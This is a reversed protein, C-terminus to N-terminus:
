ELIIRVKDIEKGKTMEELFADFRNRLESPTAPIGGEVLAAFLDVQSVTVKALGSLVDQLAKIFADSLKESLEGYEVFTTILKRSPPKLLGLNGQITPDELNALLTQTWARLMSALRDEVGELYAKASIGAPEAIPQYGCYPCIPSTQIEDETLTFCSKLEALENKFDALQQRPMLEITALKSLTDVREDSLLKKKRKDENVNLRTKAHLGLYIPLYEKRLKSMRQLTKQRKAASAAGDSMSLDALIDEHAARVRDIWEHNSPLVTEATALYAAPSSLESAFSQFTEVQGLVEVDADHAEIEVQSHKLNKLKGPLNLAQLSELFDKLRGLSDGISDIEMQDVLPSNWITIGENLANSAIVVRKILKEIAAQMQQVPEDNGQTVLQAMGPALDLLEFLAKIAPVNWDKPKEIHKFGILGDKSTAALEALSTADFKKGSIALM